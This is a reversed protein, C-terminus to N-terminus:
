TRTKVGVWKEIKPARYTEMQMLIDEPSNSVLLM